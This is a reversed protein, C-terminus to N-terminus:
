STSASRPSSMPVGARRHSSKATSTPDAASIIAPADASSGRSTRPQGSAYTRAPPRWATRRTRRDRRWPASGRPARRRRRRASRRPRGWRRPRRPRPSGRRSRPSPWGPRPAAIARRRQALVGVLRHAVEHERVVVGHAHQAGAREVGVHDDRVLLGALQDGLAALLVPRRLERRMGRRASCASETGPRVQGVSVNESRSVISRPPSRPSRTSCYQPRPCVSPSM